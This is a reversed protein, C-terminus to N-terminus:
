GAGGGGGAGRRARARARRWSGAAPRPDGLGQLLAQWLNPHDLLHRSLRDSTGFLSALLRLLAPNEHLLAFLGGSGGLALERFHFLARDPDPSALIEALWAAPLRNGVQELVE